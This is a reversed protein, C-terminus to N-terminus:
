SDLDVIFQETVTPDILCLCDHIFRVAPSFEGWNTLSATRGSHMSWFRRLPQAAARLDDRRKAADDRGDLDAALKAVASLGSITAAAHRVSEFINSGYDYYLGASPSSPLVDAKQKAVKELRNLVKQDRLLQLARNLARELALVAEKSGLGETQEYRLAWWTAYKQAAELLAVRVEREYTQLRYEALITRIREDTESRFEELSSDLNGDGRPGFVEYAFHFASLAEPLSASKASHFPNLRFLPSSYPAGSAKIPKAM